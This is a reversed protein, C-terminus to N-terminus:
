HSQVVTHQKPIPPKVKAGMFGLLKEAAAFEEETEAGVMFTLSGATAANIGGSVPADVFQLLFLLSTPHPLFRPLSYPTPTYLDELQGPM